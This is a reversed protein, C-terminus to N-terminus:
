EGTPRFTRSVFEVLDPNDRWIQMIQCTLVTVVREEDDEAKLGGMDYGAHLVEHLLVEAVYQPDFDTRVRIVGQPRHCEGDRGAAEAVAPAWDEIPYVRYGVKVSKPLDIM